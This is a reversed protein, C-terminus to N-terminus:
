HIYGRSPLTRSCGGDSERRVSGRPLDHVLGRLLSSAEEVRQALVIGYPPLKVIRRHNQVFRAAGQHALQQPKAELHFPM